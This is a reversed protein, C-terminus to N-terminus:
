AVEDTKYPANARKAAWELVESDSKDELRNYGCNCSDCHYLGEKGPVKCPLVKASNYERGEPFFEHSCVCCHVQAEVAAQKKQAPTPGGQGMSSRAGDGTWISGWVKGSGQRTPSTDNLPLYLVERRGEICARVHAESMRPTHLVVQYKTIERYGGNLARLMDNMMGELLVVKDPTVRM